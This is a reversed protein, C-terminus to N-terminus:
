IKDNPDISEILKEIGELPKIRSKMESPTFAESPTLPYQRQNYSTKGTTPNLFNSLGQSSLQHVAYGDIPIGNDVYTIKADTFPNKM